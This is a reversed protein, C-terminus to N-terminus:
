TLRIRTKLFTLLMANIKHIIILWFILAILSIVVLFVSINLHSSIADYSVMKRTSYYHYASLFLGFLNFFWWNCILLFDSFKFKSRTAIRCVKFFHFVAAFPVVYNTFPIILANKAWFLSFKNMHHIDKKRVNKAAEYFWYRSAFALIICGLAVVGNFFVHMLRHENFELIYKTTKEVDASYISNVHIAFSLSFIGYFILLGMLLFISARFISTAKYLALVSPSELPIVLSCKEYPIWKKTGSSRVLSDSTLLKREHLRLLVEAKVPGFKKDDRQYYWM